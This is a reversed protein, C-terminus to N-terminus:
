GKAMSPVIVFVVVVVIYLGWRRSPRAVCWLLTGTLFTLVLILLFLLIRESRNLWYWLHALLGSEAPIRQADLDGSRRWAEAVSLPRTVFGWWVAAESKAAAVRDKVRSRPKEAEGSEALPPDDDLAVDVAPDPGPPVTDDPVTSPETAATTM